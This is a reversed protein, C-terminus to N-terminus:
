KIDILFQNFKRERGITTESGHGPFIKVDDGFPLIKNKLSAILDKYSGGPLDTRGISGAFLTDGTFLIKEDSNTNKIFLCIGGRTHGPTHIVEIVMSGVRIEDGGKLLMDPPPSSVADLGFAASQSAVNELLVADDKHIAFKAGTAQKLRSNGGVHDFHGHTNIIYKLCLGADALALLIEDVNDGPDICAAEKTKEDGLIYCNVELPGVVLTKLIM